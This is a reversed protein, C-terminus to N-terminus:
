AASRWDQHHRFPLLINFRDPRAPVRHANLYCVYLAGMALLRVAIQLVFGMTPQMLREPYIIFFDSILNVISIATLIGFVRSLHWQHVYAWVGLVTAAVVFWGRFYLFRTLLEVLAPDQALYVSMRPASLLLAAAFMSTIILLYWVRWPFWVDVLPRAPDPGQAQLAQWEEPSILLSPPRNM